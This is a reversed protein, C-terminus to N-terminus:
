LLADGFKYKSGDFYSAETRLRYSVSAFGSWAQQELRYHVGAWPGWGGTGSLTVILLAAVVRGAMWAM